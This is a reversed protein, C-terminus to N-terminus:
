RALEKEYSGVVKVNNCCYKLEELMKEGEASNINGEGEAYFYYSWILERNPRSKLARLNFGCRGIVSIARSLAGAVNNVTFLLIFRGDNEGGDRKTRSFVAFRTTNDNEENIGAQLVRLGYREAAEASGIAALSTDGSEAVRKAAVATNVAELTEFGHDSIFKACQGLAQPHSIVTKIKGIEADPTGLLNQIISIDYIGNIFLSGSFALDMVQGVDGNSSNEVPLVACDCEGNVVANYAARFDPYAVAAADPFIRCAAVNAFAGEVGSFAARMGDMLRHQMARSIEMNAQLFRVFYSRYEENEILAANKAIVEQERSPDFVQLGREKKYAAVQKVADMRRVFLKALCADVENIEKRAKELETM